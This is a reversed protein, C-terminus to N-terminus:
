LDLSAPNAFPLVSPWLPVGLLVNDKDGNKGDVDDDDDNGDSLSHKNHDIHHGWLWPWIPFPNADDGEDGERVVTLSTQTGSDKDENCNHVIDKM